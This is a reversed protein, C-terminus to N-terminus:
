ESIKQKKEPLEGHMARFLGCLYERDDVNEVLLMEKGGEYPLEYTVQKLYKIASPVPKVMLRNDYIGGAVKGGYFIVFEGMMARYSVDGLESLQDLIHNLYDRSSAM